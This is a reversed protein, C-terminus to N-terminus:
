RITIKGEERLLTITEGVSITGEILLPSTITRTKTHSFSDDDFEIDIEDLIITIQMGEISPVRMQVQSGPASFSLWEVNAQLEDSFVTYQNTRALLTYADMAHAFAPTFLALMGALAAWLLLAEISIQGSTAIKKNKMM